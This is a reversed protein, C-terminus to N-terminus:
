QALQRAVQTWEHGNIEIARAAALLRARDVDGLTNDAARERYQQAKQLTRRAQSAFKQMEHPKMQHIVKQLLKNTGMMSRTPRTTLLLWGRRNAVIRWGAWHGRLTNKVWSAGIGSVLRTLGLGGGERSSHPPGPENGVKVVPKGAVQHEEGFQTGVPDLPPNNPRLLFQLVGGVIRSPMMSRHVEAGAIELPWGHASAGRGVRNM